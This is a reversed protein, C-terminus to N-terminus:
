GNLQVIYIGLWCKTSLIIGQSPIVKFVWYINQNELEYSLATECRVYNSPQLLYM